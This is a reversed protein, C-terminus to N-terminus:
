CFLSMALITKSTGRDVAHFIEYHNAMQVVHDRFMYRGLLFCIISGLTAGVFVAVSSCFVSLIVANRYQQQQLAQHFAYGTGITLISGPIFLITALIYLLIIVFIGFLLHSSLWDILSTYFQELYRTTKTDVIIHVITITLFVIMCTRLSCWCCCRESTRNERIEENEHLDLNPQTEQAVVSLGTQESAM